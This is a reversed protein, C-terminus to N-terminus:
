VCLNVIFISGNPDNDEVTIDGNHAEAVLKCFALGLGIQAIGQQKLAVIEFKDFIRDRHEEAIGPGFDAVKIRLREQDLMEMRVDIQSNSPSYKIANSFLNDILRTVLYSDLGVQWSEVPLELNIMIQRADAIIQQNEKVQRLLACIDVPTRNVTLKGQEMKAAMLLDNLLGNLRQSQLQVREMRRRDLENLESRHLISDTSGQIVSLPSRMDHVIMHSLDDRLKLLNVLEDYQRKIRLMSRVRSRLELSNVPKSLFEDAGVDLGHALDEKDDLATILIVPIHKWHNNKKLQTCVEFGDMGPMMVDLLIVDPPYAAIITLAEEGNEAFSIQYNEGMLLAELAQRTIPEDDVILIKAFKQNEM